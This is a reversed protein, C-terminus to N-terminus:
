RLHATVTAKQKNSSADAVVVHVFPSRAPVDFPTPTGAAVNSAETDTFLVNGDGDRWEFKLDYSRSGEVEGALREAGRATLSEEVTDDASLTVGKKFGYDTSPPDRQRGSADQLGVPADIELGGGEVVVLLQNKEKDAGPLDALYDLSQTFKYGDAQFSTM